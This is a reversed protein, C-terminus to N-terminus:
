EYVAKEIKVSRFSIGTVAPSDFMRNMAKRLEEKIAGIKVAELDKSRVVSQTLVSLADRKVLVEQKRSADCYVTLEAVVVIDDRNQVRCSVNGLDVSDRKDRATRTEQARPEKTVPHSRQKDRVSVESSDTRDGIQERRVQARFHKDPRSTSDERATLGNEPVDGESVLSFVGGADNDGAGDAPHFISDRNNYIIIGAVVVVLLIIFLWKWFNSARGTHQEWSSESM